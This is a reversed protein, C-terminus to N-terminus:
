PGPLEAGEGGFLHASRTQASTGGGSARERKTKTGPPPAPMGLESLTKPDISELRLSEFGHSHRLFVSGGSVETITANTYTVLGITLTPFTKGAAGADAALNTTAGAITWICLWLSHKIVM